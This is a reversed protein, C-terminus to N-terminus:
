RTTADDGADIEERRVTDSVERQETEGAGTTTGIGAGLYIEEITGIKEGDASRLEQGRYSLIDHTQHTM